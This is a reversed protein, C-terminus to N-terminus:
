KEKILNIIKIIEKDLANSILYCTPCSFLLLGGKGYVIKFTEQYLDTGCCFCKNLKLKKM